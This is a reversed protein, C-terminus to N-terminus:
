IARKKSKIKTNKTLDSAINNTLQIYNKLNKGAKEWLKKGTKYKEKLLINIEM